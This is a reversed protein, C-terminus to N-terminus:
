DRREDQLQRRQTHVSEAREVELLRRRMLAIQETRGRVLTSLDARARDFDTPSQEALTTAELHSLGNDAHAASIGAADAHIAIEQRAAVVRREARRALGESRVTEDARALLRRGAEE